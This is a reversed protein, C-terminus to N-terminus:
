IPGHDMKEDMKIITVGPKEERLITQQIPSPGRLRPLLSPHINLTKHPPLNIIKKPLIRGYSAVLFLECGVVSLRRCFEFDLKEPQLLSINNEKAWLKAPPPTVILKRGKPKDPATIILQLRLGKNKLTELVTVAFEDTGWFVFKPM